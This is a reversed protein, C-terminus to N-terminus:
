DNTGALPRAAPPTPAALTPEVSRPTSEARREKRRRAINRWIGFGFFLFAISAVVWAGIGEWDAHVNVAIVAPQGVSVGAPSFMTVRLVVEGNGVAATVPVTITQASNANITADIDSEVLLRGNSPVVQVRVTVPQSLENRLTIPFDVKDAAVNIPGRTTVSVSGLIARSDTLSAAVAEAWTDPQQSWNTSLLALLSLRQDATVTLPDEVSAAFATVDNEAQLLQRIPNLRDESESQSRFQVTTAAPASLAAGLTGATSWPLGTLADLTEGLRSGASAPDRDMTALLTRASRVDEASVIALLSSAEDVSARWLADTPAQAAAAIADSLTSDAVLGRGDTHTFVSNPTVSDSQRVNDSSVITTPLGNATFAKLDTRAVSGQRPWVLDTQTYNWALLEAMTPVTSETPTPTVPSTPADTESTVVFNAADIISDFSLPDLLTQAGAQVETSADSDAYRLPFIDNTATSLRDLWNVASTPAASGLVRISAIIRPDIAIAIPRNIVADLQTSLTGASATFEQLSDATLVGDTTEPTTIPVITALTVPTVTEGLDWVFTGRGETKEDDVTVTAAIGRAGWANRETLGIDAAPVTVPMTLTAGPTIQATMPTRLLRDGGNSNKEPRLWNELAPRTTLARQALSVDLTGLGVTASTGNHVTVTLALDEGPRLSSSGAPTVTVSVEDAGITAMQVAGASATGGTAALAPTGLSGLLAIVLASASVRWLAPAM